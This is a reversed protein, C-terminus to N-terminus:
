KKACPILLSFGFAVLAILVGLVIGLVMVALNFPQIVVAFGHFLNALEEM